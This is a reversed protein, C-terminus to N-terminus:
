RISGFVEIDRLVPAVSEYDVGMRESVDRVTNFTSAARISKKQRKEKAKYKAVALRVCAKCKPNYGGRCSTQRYFSLLPKREKCENCVRWETPVSRTPALNM